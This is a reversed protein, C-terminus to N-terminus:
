VALRVPVGLVQYLESLLDRLRDIETAQEDRAKKLQEIEADTM